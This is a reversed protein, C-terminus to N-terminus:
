RRPPPHQRRPRMGHNGGPGAMPPLQAPESPPQDKMKSLGGKPPAPGKSPPGQPGKRSNSPNGNKLRPGKKARPPHSAPPPPPRIRPPQKNNDNNQQPHKPPPLPSPTENRRPKIPEPKGVGSALSTKRDPLAPPTSPPTVDFVPPRPRNRSLSLGRQDVSLVNDKAGKWIDSVTNLHGLRGQLKRKLSSDMYLWVTTLVGLLVCAIYLGIYLDLMGDNLDDRYFKLIGVLISGQIGSIKYINILGTLIFNPRGIAKLKINDSIKMPSFTLIIVFFVMAVVTVVYPFVFYLM